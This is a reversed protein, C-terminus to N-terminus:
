PAAAAFATHGSCRGQGFTYTVSGDVRQRLPPRADRRVRRRSRAPTACSRRATRSSPLLADRTSESFLQTSVHASPGLASDAGLEYRLSRGPRLDDLRAWTIAPSAAVTSLTLLDGGPTLTRTAFSGRVVTQRDGQLEVEVVADARHSDPLFGLYTYRAGATAELRDGIQWRDRVFVAGLATWAPEPRCFAEPAPARATAPEWRSRIARGPISCSSPPVRWARGENESMLGGLTWGVGDTLRGQLQLAGM